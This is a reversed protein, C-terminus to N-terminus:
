ATLLIHLRHASGGEARNGHLFNGDDAGVALRKAIM